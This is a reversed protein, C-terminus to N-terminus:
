HWLFGQELEEAASGTCTAQRRGDTGQSLCAPVGLADHPSDGPTASKVGNGAANRGAICWPAAIRSATKMTHM